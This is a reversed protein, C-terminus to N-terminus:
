LKAAFGIIDDTQDEDGKWELLNDLLATKMNSLSSAQEVTELVRKTGWRRGEPNMQDPIGDSFTFIIDGKQYKILQNQFPQINGGVLNFLIAM